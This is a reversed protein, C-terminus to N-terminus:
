VQFDNHSERYERLAKKILGQKNNTKALMDLIDADVNNNLKITQSTTNSRNWAAKQANRTEKDVMVVTGKRNRGPNRM